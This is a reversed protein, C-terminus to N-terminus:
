KYCGWVTFLEFTAELMQFLFISLCFTTYGCLPINRLFVLVVISVCSTSSFSLIMINILSALGERLSFQPSGDTRFELSRWSCIESLRTTSHFPLSASCTTCSSFKLLHYIELGLSPKLCKVWTWFLQFQVIWTHQNIISWSYRLIFNSPFPIFM